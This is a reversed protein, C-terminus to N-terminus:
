SYNCGIIRCGHHNKGHGEMGEPQLTSIEAYGSVVQASLHATVFATLSPWWFNVAMATAVNTVMRVYECVAYEACAMCVCECVCVCVCVCVCTCVTTYKRYKRDRM